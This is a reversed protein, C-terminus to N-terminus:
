ALLPMWCTSTGGIRETLMFACGLWASRVSGRVRSYLSLTGDCFNGGRGGALARALEFGVDVLLITVVDFIDFDIIQAIPISQGLARSLLHYIDKIRRGVSIGLARERGLQRTALVRTENRKIQTTIMSLKGPEFIASKTVRLTADASRLRTVNLDFFLSAGTREVQCRCVM